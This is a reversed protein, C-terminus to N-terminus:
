PTRVGFPNENRTVPTSLVQFIPTQDLDFVIQAQRGDSMVLTGRVQQGPQVYQALKLQGTPSLDELRVFIEQMQVKPVLADPNLLGYGYSPDLGEPGVDVATECIMKLLEAQSAPRQATAVMLAVSGSVFPTAMSTGSLKAYGRVPYTSLIQDGPAVIDVQRGRSSFNSVKKQRDVSGVAIMEPFKAPYGVTDLSPGENGAAVIVYLGKSIAYKLAEYIAQDPSSSGLSMSIIHAGMDVAWHVGAAIQRGSGSGHDGLVKGALIKCEPAVGIVGLSNDLAAIIGSCHTGHGNVDQPGSPSGTFDKADLIQGQLDPHNLDVGTDLVAVKAGKGRSSKWVAPIGFVELGWDMTQSLGVYVTERKIPPLRYIPEDGSTGQIRVIVPESSTELDAQRVELDTGVWRAGWSDFDPLIEPLVPFADSSM